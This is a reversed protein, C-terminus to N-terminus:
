VGMVVDGDAGGNNLMHCSFNDHTTLPSMTDHVTDNKKYIDNGMSSRPPLNWFSHLTTKQVPEKRDENLLLNIDRMEDDDDEEGEEEQTLMENGIRANLGIADDRHHHSHTQSDASTNM